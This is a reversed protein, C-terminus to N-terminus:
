RDIDFYLLKSGFDFTLRTIGLSTPSLMGDFDRLASAATEVMTAQRTGRKTGGLRVDLLEVREAVYDGGASVDKHSGSRQLALTRERVRAAFLTIGDAGTDLLLRVTQSNMEM